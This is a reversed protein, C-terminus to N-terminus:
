KRKRLIMRNMLNFNFNLILFIKYEIRPTNSFNHFHKLYYSKEQKTTIQTKSRDNLNIISKKWICMLLSQKQQNQIRFKVPYTEASKIMTVLADYCFNYSHIVENLGLLQFKWVWYRQYKVYSNSNHRQWRHSTQKIRSCIELACEQICLLFIIRYSLSIM